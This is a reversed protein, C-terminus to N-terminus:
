HTERALRDRMRQLLGDIGHESIISHFQSRYNAVMSVSDTTVDFVRWTGGVNHMSYAIEM